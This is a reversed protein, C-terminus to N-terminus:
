RDSPSYANAFRQRLAAKQVKGMANRPLAEVWVFRRPHKFRALRVDLADQLVADAIPEVAPVLIAVVGEGMEAHPVGVVASEAVGAVADLVDEIEKPYINLGGSIIVDKARGVIAVRGDRAMVGVDGTIFFGDTRFEEATKEPRRWYGKFVNPGRVEIVGTEGRPVEGGVGDAARVEIGPLPFGVTGAIRAGELPNSTIMGTETMGYRELIPKGTRKEWAEFVQPTLPASGSIFLRMHACEERSIGAELLRTYFTPVGMLVTAKPLHRRVEAADFKELFIQPTANLFSTHLAVFLGHVHYIPLAHLLVDDSRFDWLAHLALANSALNGHTLMAGKSRGTTGSTYVIAALDDEGREIPEGHRGASGAADPVSSLFLKPEADELFYEVESSTYATNLPVWVAGRRLCALYLAVGSISKGIQAVLRDGRGVSREGLWGDLALVQAELEAHTVRRDGPLIFAPENRRLRWRECIMAYLNAM